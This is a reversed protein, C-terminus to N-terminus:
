KRPVPSAHIPQFQQIPAANQLAPEPPNEADILQSLDRRAEEFDPYLRLLEAYRRQAAAVKGVQATFMAHYRKATRNLHHLRSSWAPSMSQAKALADSLADEAASLNEHIETLYPNHRVIRMALWSFHIRAEIVHPDFVEGPRQSALTIARHYEKRAEDVAGRFEHVKALEIAASVSQPRRKAAASLLAQAEDLYQAELRRHEALQERLKKTTAILDGSTILSQSDPAASRDLTALADWLPQMTEGPRHETQTALLLARLRRLLPTADREITSPSANLELIGTLELGIQTAQVCAHHYRAERARVTGFNYAAVPNEPMHQRDRGILRAETAWHFNVDQIAHSMVLAYVITPLLVVAQRRASAGCFHHLAAAVVMAMAFSFPLLLRNAAYVGVPALLNGVLLYNGLAVVGAVVLWRRRKVLRWSIMCCVALLTVGLITERSSWGPLDAPLHYYTTSPSFYQAFYFWAISIAAPIRELTSVTRLPNDRMDDMFQGTYDVQLGVVHTRAALYAATPLLLLLATGLHVSRPTAPIDDLIETSAQRRGVWEQAIAAPILILGTEKSGLAVVAAVLALGARWWAWNGREISLRQLLLFGVIGVMALIDARCVIYNAFEAHVAHAAFLFAAFWAASEQVYRSLWLALLWCFGTLLLINVGRFYRPTMGEVRGDVVTSVLPLRANIWYSLITVPRYLNRDTSRGSWYDHTWLTKWGDANIVDPNQEVIDADDILFRYNFRTNVYFTFILLSLGIPLLINIAVHRPWHFRHSLWLAVAGALMIGLMVLHPVEISNLIAAVFTQM